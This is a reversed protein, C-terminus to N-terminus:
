RRRRRMALGGLGLLALSGPTPVRAAASYNSEAFWNQSPLKTNANIPVGPNSGNYPLAGSTNMISLGFMTDRPSGNLSGPALGYQPLAAGGWVMSLTAGGSDDVSLNGTTFWHAQDGRANFLANSFSTTLLTTGTFIDTFTFQGSAAYNYSIAGGPLNVSGVFTLTYQASFSVSAQLPAALGNEDEITLVLPDASGNTGNQVNAGNGTFTWAHDSTNTDFSFLAANASGAAFVLAACALLCRNM